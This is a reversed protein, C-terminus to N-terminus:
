RRARARDVASGRPTAALRREYRSADIADTFPVAEAAVLPPAFRAVLHRAGLLERARLVDVDDVVVVRVAEHEVLQGGKLLRAFDLYPHTVTYFAIESSGTM